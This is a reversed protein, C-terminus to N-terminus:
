WEGPTSGEIQYYDEKKQAWASFLKSSPSQSAENAEKWTVRDVDEKYARNVSLYGWSILVVFLVLYVKAM